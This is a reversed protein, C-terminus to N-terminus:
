RKQNRRANLRVRDLEERQAKKLEYMVKRPASRWVHVKKGIKRCWYGNLDFWGSGVRFLVGDHTYVDTVEATSKIRRKAPETREDGGKEKRVSLELPDFNVYEPPLVPYGEPAGARNGKHNGAPAGGGTQQQSSVAPKDPSKQFFSM